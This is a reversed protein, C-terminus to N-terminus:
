ARLGSGQARLRGGTVGAPDDVLQAREAGPVGAAEVAAGVEAFGDVVRRRDVRQLPDDAVEEAHCSQSRGTRSIRMM